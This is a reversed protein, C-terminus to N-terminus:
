IRDGQLPLTSEMFSTSSFSDLYSTLKNIGYNKVDDVINHVFAMTQPYTLSSTISQLTLSSQLEKLISIEKISTSLKM